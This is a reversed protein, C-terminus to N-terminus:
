RLIEVATSDPEYGEDKMTQQAAEHLEESTANKPFKCRRRIVEEGVEMRLVWNSKDPDWVLEARDVRM